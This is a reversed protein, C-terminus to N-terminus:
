DNVEELGFCLNEYKNAITINPEPFSQYYQQFRLYNCDYFGEHKLMEYISYVFECGTIPPREIIDSILVTSDLTIKIIYKWEYKKVDISKVRM